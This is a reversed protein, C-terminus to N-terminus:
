LPTGDEHFFEDADLVVDFAALAVECDHAFREKAHNNLPLVDSNVVENGCRLETRFVKEALIYGFDRHEVRVTEGTKLKKVNTYKMNM